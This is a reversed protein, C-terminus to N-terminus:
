CTASDAPVAVARIDPCFVRAPKIPIPGPATLQLDVLENTATDVTVHIGDLSVDQPDILTTGGVTAWLTVFGAQFDYQVPVASATSPAVLVGVLSLTSLAALLRRTRRGAAALSQEWRRSSGVM